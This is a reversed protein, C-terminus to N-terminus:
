SQSTPLAPHYSPRIHVNAALRASIGVQSGLVRVIMPDGGKVIQVKRGICLGLAMLRSADETAVDVCSITVIHHTSAHSLPISDPQPM